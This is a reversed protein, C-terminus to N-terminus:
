LKFEKLISYVPGSSTLSSKLLSFSNVNFKIPNVKVKMLDGVFQRKDNIMKVRALTLHPVFPFDDKFDPLADKVLSALERFEGKVGCWVVNIHFEGPFVGLGDLSGVFGDLKVESLADIVLDLKSDDVEGLFKLTLHFDNVNKLIANPLNNQLRKLEFCVSSPLNIAVFLRM